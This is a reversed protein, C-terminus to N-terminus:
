GVVSMGQKVEVKVQEMHERDLVTNQLDDESVICGDGVCVSMSVGDRAVLPVDFEFTDQDENMDTVLEDYVIVEDIDGDEDTVIEYHYYQRDWYFTNKATYKGTGRFTKEFRHNYTEGQDWDLKNFIGMNGFEEKSENARVSWLTRWNEDFYYSNDYLYYRKVTQERGTKDKVVYTTELRKYGDTTVWEQGVFKQDAPHERLAKAADRLSDLRAELKSGDTDDPDKQGGVSEIINQANAMGRSKAIGRSYDTGTEDYFEQLRKDKGDDKYYSKVVYEQANKGKGTVTVSSDISTNTVSLIAGQIQQAALHCKGYKSALMDATGTQPLLSLSMSRLDQGSRNSGTQLRANENIDIRYSYDGNSFNIKEYSYATQVQGDRGYVPLSGSTVDGFVYSRSSREEGTKVDSSTFAALNESTVNASTSFIGDAYAPFATLCVGMLIMAAPKKLLKKKM